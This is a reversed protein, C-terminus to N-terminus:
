PLSNISIGPFAIRRKLSNCMVNTLVLTSWIPDSQTVCDFSFFPLLFQTLSASLYENIICVFSQVMIKGIFLLFSFLWISFTFFFSFFNFFVVVNFLYLLLFLVLFYSMNLVKSNKMKPIFSNFICLYLIGLKSEWYDSM